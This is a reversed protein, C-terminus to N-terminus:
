AVLWQVPAPMTGLPRWTDGADDSLYVTDGVAAWALGARDFAIRGTDINHDVAAPFGRTVHHWSRGASDSRLLKADASGHPGNSVTALLTGPQHPHVAIARGYRQGNAFPRHHWARGRDDSIWVANATNTIVRDCAAPCTTVEHVDEEVADDVPQWTEGRDESRMISGVHIDAYVCSGVAALTRLAAPGGWPTHWSDRVDLAAFAENRSVRQAAEDDDIIVGYLQAGQTGVLVRPPDGDLVALATVQEDFAALERSTNGDFQLIRGDDDAAIITDATGRAARRIDTAGALPTPEDGPTVWDHLQGGALILM